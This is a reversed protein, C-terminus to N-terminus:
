SRLWEMYWRLPGLRWLAELAAFSAAGAILAMGARHVYAM